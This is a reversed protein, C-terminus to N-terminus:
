RNRVVGFLHIKKGALIKSEDVGIRTRSQRYVGHCQGYERQCTGRIVADNISRLVDDCLPQRESISAELGDIGDQQVWHVTFLCVEKPALLVNKTMDLLTIEKEESHGPGPRASTM